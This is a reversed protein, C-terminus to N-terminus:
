GTSQKGQTLHNMLLSLLRYRGLCLVHPMLKNKLNQLKGLFQILKPRQFYKHYTLGQRTIQIKSSKLLKKNIRHKTCTKQSIFNYRKVKLM